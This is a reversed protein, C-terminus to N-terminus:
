QVVVDNGGGRFISDAGEGGRMLDDGPGGLLQDEGPGGFISDNGGRGSLYDNGPGGVLKDNGAGGFLRDDGPGGRLTAPVPVDPALTIVDNGGAGNIEFGAIAAAECLLANPKEEPHVCINGGVELPSASEIAYSRGDASVHVSIVNAEADGALVVNLSKEPLRAAAPAAAVLPLCAAALAAATLIAALLKRM